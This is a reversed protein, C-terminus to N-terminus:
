VAHRSKMHSLCHEFGDDSFASEIAEAAGAAAVEARDCMTAEYAEVASTWDDGETLAEALDAADTMALNVGEGSFPSMVHAADGLLTIGPRNAWRHGIPLAYLPLLTIRNDCERIMALLEESWGPFQAALKDRADDPRDVDIFGSSAWGEPVRLGVYIGVHADADRHALLGRNDGLAFLMGRGVLRAVEPHRRDADEFSLSAFTIGTYAPVADSVLPRVRSRTGDAGVVLDFTEAHGGEFALDVAGDPRPQISM